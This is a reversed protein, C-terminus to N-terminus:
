RIGGLGGCCSTSPGTDLVGRRGDDPAHADEDGQTHEGIGKWEYVDTWRRVGTSSCSVDRAVRRLAGPCDRTYRARLRLM